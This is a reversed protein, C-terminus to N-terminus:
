TVPATMSTLPPISIWPYGMARGRLFTELSKSASFAFIIRRSVTLQGVDAAGAM